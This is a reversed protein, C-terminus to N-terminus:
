MDENTILEWDFEEFEGTDINKVMNTTPDYEMVGYNIDWIEYIDKEENYKMFVLYQKGVEPEVGKASLQRFYTNKKEEQPILVNFSNIEWENWNFDSYKQLKLFSIQGCLKLCNLTDKYNNLTSKLCRKVKFIRETELTLFGNRIESKVDVEKLNEVIAIEDSGNILIDLINDTIKDIKLYQTYFTIQEGSIESQVYNLNNETKKDAPVKNMSSIGFYVGAIIVMGAVICGVTTAVPNSRTIKVEKYVEHRDQTEEYKKYVSSIYDEMSKM